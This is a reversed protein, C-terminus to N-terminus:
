PRIAGGHDLWIMLETGDPQGSTSPSRNFWIDYAADYATDGAPVAFAWTSVVPPLKAAEVPMGSGETCNGWHCGKFIAPYTAPPGNTAIDFRGQTVTFATGKVDVCQGEDSNWRNNQVVYERENVSVTGFKECNEEGGPGPVSAG